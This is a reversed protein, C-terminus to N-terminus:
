NLSKDLINIMGSSTTAKFKLWEKKIGNIKRVIKDKTVLFDISNSTQMIIMSDLLEFGEKVLYEVKSFDIATTVIEVRQYSQIEGLINIVDKMERTPLPIEFKKAKGESIKLDYASFEKERILYEDKKADILKYMLELFLIKPIVLVHPNKFDTLLRLLQKSKKAGISVRLYDIWINTDVCIRLQKM